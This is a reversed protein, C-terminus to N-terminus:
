LAAAVSCCRFFDCDVGNLKLYQQVASANNKDCSHSDREPSM